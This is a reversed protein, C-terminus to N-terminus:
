GVTHLLVVACFIVGPVGGVHGISSQLCPLAIPNVLLYTYSRYAM